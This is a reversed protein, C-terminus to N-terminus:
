FINGLSLRESEMIHELENKAEYSIEIYKEYDKQDFYFNLMRIRREFDDLHSHQLMVSFVLEARDWKEMLRTNSMELRQIDQQQACAISETLLSDLEENTDRLIFYGGVCLLCAAVFFAIAIALRKL